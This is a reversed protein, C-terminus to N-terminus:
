KDCQIVIAVGYELMAQHKRGLVIYIKNKTEHIYHIFRDLAEEM